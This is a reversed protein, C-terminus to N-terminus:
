ALQGTCANNPLNEWNASLWNIFSDGDGIVMGYAVHCESACVGDWYSEEKGLTKLWMNLWTHIQEIEVNKHKKKAM